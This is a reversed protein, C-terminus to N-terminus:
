YGLNKFHVAELQLNTILSDTIDSLHDVEEFSSLDEDDNDIVYVLIRTNTEDVPIMFKLADAESCCDAIEQNLQKYYDLAPFTHVSYNGVQKFFSESTPKM